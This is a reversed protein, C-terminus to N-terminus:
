ALNRVQPPCPKRARACRPTNVQPSPITLNPENRPQLPKLLAGPLALLPHQQPHQLGKSSAFLGSSSLRIAGLNVDCSQSERSGVDKRFGQKARDERLHAPSRESNILGSPFCVEISVAPVRLWSGGKFGLHGCVRSGRKVGGASGQFSRRGAPVGNAPRDSRPARKGSGPSNTQTVEFFSASRLRCM